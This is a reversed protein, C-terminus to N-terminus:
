ALDAVAQFKLTKMLLLFKYEFTLFEIKKSKANIEYIINKPQKHLNFYLLVHHSLVSKAYLFVIVYSKFANIIRM